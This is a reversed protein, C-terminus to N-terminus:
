LRYAQPQEATEGLNATKDVPSGEGSHTEAALEYLPNQNSPNANQSALGHSVMQGPNKSRKFSGIQLSSSMTSPESDEWETDSSALDAVGYPSIVPGDHSSISGALGTDHDSGRSVKVM